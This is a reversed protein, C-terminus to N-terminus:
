PVCIPEGTNTPHIVTQGRVGFALASVGSQGAGSLAGADQRLARARDDDRSRPRFRPHVAPDRRLIKPSDDNGPRKHGAIVARPNLSEITDLASIGERRTQPPDSTVTPIGPTVFVDWKLDLLESM